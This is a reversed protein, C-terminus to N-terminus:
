SPLSSSTKIAAQMPPAISPSNGFLDLRKDKSSDTLEKPSLGCEMTDWNDEDDQHSAMRLWVSVMITIFLCSIGLLVLISTRDDM